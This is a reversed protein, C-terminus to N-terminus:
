SIRETNRSPKPTLGIDLLIIAHKEGLLIDSRNKANAADRDPFHSVLPTSRSHFIDM